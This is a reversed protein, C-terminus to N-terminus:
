ALLDKMTFFGTKGILFEAALLAGKALGSRNKASHTLTITDAASDYEVTHIGAIEGERKSTIEIEGSQGYQKIQNSLTIATGSPADLKHVHHTESISVKYEPHGKMLTALRENLMFVINMGISFNSAVFLSQGERLCRSSVDELHDYWGTTGVVVPLHRLFCQEVNALVTSPTSFEIAVDADDPVSAWDSANDVIGVVVHGATQTMQEVARGMKGHGVILIKM